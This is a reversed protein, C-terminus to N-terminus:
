RERGVLEILVNTAVNDSQALMLAVLEAPTSIYGLTGTPSPADNVTLNAATVAVPENWRLRGAHEAAAVAVALPVKIMSAPYITAGSDYTAEAGNPGLPRLYVVAGALGAEAVWGALDLTRGTGTVAFGVWSHMYT